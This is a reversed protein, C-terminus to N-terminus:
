LMKGIDAAARVVALRNDEDWALWRFEDNVIAGVSWGGRNPEFAITMHLATSLRFADGDDTLPNWYGGENDFGGRSLSLGLKIGAAKAALILLEKNITMETTMATIMETNPGFNNAFWVQDTGKSM